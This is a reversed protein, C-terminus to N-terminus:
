VAIRVAQGNLPGASPIKFPTEIQFLILNKQNRHILIAATFAFLFSFQTAKLAIFVNM